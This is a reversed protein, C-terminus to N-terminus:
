NESKLAEPKGTVYTLHRKARTVAVYLLNTEEQDAGPKYTDVLVYAHERELGKFRHTSSLTIHNDAGRDNKKEEPSFAYCRGLIEQVSAESDLRSDLEYTLAIVTAHEDRHRDNASGSKQNARQTELWEDNYARLTEGTFLGSANGKSVKAEHKWKWGKIRYALMRGYDRGIFKVRIQRRALQFFLRILPANTRSILVDGYSLRDLLEKAECQDVIGDKANPAYTIDPNFQQAEAIISKACRWSCSLPLLKCSFENILTPLSDIDAGAFNFIAQYRDGVVFLRANPKLAKSILARRAPSLDQAEDVFVADYQDVPWDNVVPLWVEDDFTTAAKSQKRKFSISTGPQRRTFEMVRLAREALEEKTYGSEINFRDILQVMATVDGALCTKGKSVLELLADRDQKKDKEPGFEAEALSQMYPGFGDQVDFQQHGWAAPKRMSRFGLGHCTLVDVPYGALRKQGEDKVSVNFAVFLVRHGSNVEIYRIISEVMATTKGGGAVAEIAGNGTGKEIFDFVRTFESNWGSPPIFRAAKKITGQPKRYYRYAM